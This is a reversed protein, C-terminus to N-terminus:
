RYRSLDHVFLVFYGVFMVFWGVFQIIDLLRRWSFALDQRVIGDIAALSDLKASVTAKWEMLDFQEVDLDFFYPADKQAPAPELPGLPARPRFPVLLLYCIDADM